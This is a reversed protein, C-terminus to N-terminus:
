LRAMRLKEAIVDTVGLLPDMAPPVMIVIEPVFKADFKHKGVTIIPVVGAVFTLTLEPTM